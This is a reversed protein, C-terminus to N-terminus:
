FGQGPMDGNGDFIGPQIFFRLMFVFLADMGLVINFAQGLACYFLLMAVLQWMGSVSRGVLFLLFYAAFVPLLPYYKTIAKKM